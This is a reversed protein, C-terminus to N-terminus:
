SLVLPIKYCISLNRIHTPNSHLTPLISKLQLRPGQFTARSYLSSLCVRHWAGRLALDVELTRFLTFGPALIRINPDTGNSSRIKAKM